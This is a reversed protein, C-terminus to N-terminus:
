QQKDSRNKGRDLRGFMSSGRRMAGLKGGKGCSGVGVIGTTPGQNESENQGGGVVSETASALKQIKKKGWSCFAVQPKAEGWGKAKPKIIKGCKSINESPRTQEL